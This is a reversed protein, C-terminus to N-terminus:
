HKQWPIFVIDVYIIHTNENVSGQMSSTLANNVFPVNFQLQWTMHSYTRYIKNYLTESVHILM